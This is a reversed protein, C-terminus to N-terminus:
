RRDELRIIRRQMDAWDISWFKDRMKQTNKLENQMEALMVNQLNLTKQVEDLTKEGKELYKELNDLLSKRESLINEIQTVRPLLIAISATHSKITEERITSSAALNGSTTIIFLIVLAAASLVKWVIGGINVVKKQKATLTL